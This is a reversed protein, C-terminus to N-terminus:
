PTWRHGCKPCEVERAIETVDTDYSPFEIEQLRILERVEDDSLGTSGLLESGDELEGLIGALSLREWDAEEATRNDAIAYAALEEDDLDVWRVPVSEMGLIEVAARLRMHGAAIRGDSRRAVVPALFGFRRISEAVKALGEDSISRPNDQWPQLEAVAM